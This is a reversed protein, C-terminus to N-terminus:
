TGRSHAQWSLLGASAAREIHAMRLPGLKRKGDSVQRASFGRDQAWLMRVEFVEVKIMRADIEWVCTGQAKGVRAALAHLCVSQTASMCAAQISEQM